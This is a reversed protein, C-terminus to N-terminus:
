PHPGLKVPPMVDHWLPFRLPRDGVTCCKGCASVSTVEAMEAIETPCIPGDM